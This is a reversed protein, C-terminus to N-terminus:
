GGWGVGYALGVPLQQYVALALRLRLADGLGIGLGFTVARGATRIGTSFDLRESAVFRIGAQGGLPAGVTQEAAAYLLVRPSSAYRIGLRLRHDALPLLPRAVYTYDAAGTLTPTVRYTIGGSAVPVLESGYVEYDGTAVGVRLGARLGDVLERAAGVYAGVLRYGPPAFYAIGAQATVRPLGFSLDLAFRDLQALDLQRYGYAQAAFGGGTPGSAPNERGGWVTGEAVTAYALAEARPTQLLQGSATKAFAAGLLCCVLCACLRLM